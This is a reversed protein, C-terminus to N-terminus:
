LIFEMENGKQYKETKSKSPLQRIPILKLKGAELNDFESGSTLPKYEGKDNNKMDIVRLINSYLEERRENDRTELETFFIKEYNSTPSLYRKSPNDSNSYALASLIFSGLIIKNRM